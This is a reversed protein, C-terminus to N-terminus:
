SKTLPEERPVASSEPAIPQPAASTLGQPTGRLLDLTPQIAPSLDGAKVAAIVAATDARAAVMLPHENVADATSQKGVIQKTSNIRQYIGYAIPAVVTLYDVLQTQSFKPVIGVAGLTAFVIAAVMGWIAKSKYWVIAGNM